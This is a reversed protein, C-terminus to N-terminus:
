EKYDIEEIKVGKTRLCSIAQEIENLEGDIRLIVWGSDKTVNAQKINTVVEFEHGLQYIIPERIFEEKFTLKVEREAM